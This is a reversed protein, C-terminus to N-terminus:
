LSLLIRSTVPLHLHKSFFFFM